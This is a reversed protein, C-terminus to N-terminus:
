AEGQPNKPSRNLFRKIKKNLRGCGKLERDCLYLNCRPEWSRGFAQILRTSGFNEARDFDAIAAPGVDIALQMKPTPTLDSGLRSALSRAYPVSLRRRATRPSRGIVAAITDQSAGYIPTSAKVFTFRKTRFQVFSNGGSANSSARGAFFSSPQPVNPNRGKERTGVTIEERCYQSQDQKLQAAARAIIVKKHKLDGISLRDRLLNNVMRRDALVKFMASYFVRAKGDIWQIRRLFGENVCKRLYDKCTRPALALDISMVKLDIDVCGTGAEDLLRAYLYANGHSPLHEWAQISVWRLRNDM